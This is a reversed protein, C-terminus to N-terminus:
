SDFSHCREVRGILYTLPCSNMLFWKVGNSSTQDQIKSTGLHEVLEWFEWEAGIFYTGQDSIIEQPYRLCSAM